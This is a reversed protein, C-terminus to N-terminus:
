PQDDDATPWAFRRDREYDQRRADLAMAVYTPSNDGVLLRLPGDDSDVHALIAAAAVSPAAEAGPERGSEDWPVDATGFISRRLEDYAEIPASFKMSSWSWDTDFGDLEAITVRIGMGAVEAALAESFGELAWKGANYLGFGPMTGVGGVTSIQVIHGSEQRRLHPLVAQSVWLAGLLNTDIISRAEAESVEEIMGVLGYGANNVVIDIRGAAVVARDVAEVIATRDRVDLVEVDVRGPYREVLDELAAPGRVTGVVRDGAALAAEVIARGIGRGAGTVFWVRPSSDAAIVTRRMRCVRSGVVSGAAYRSQIGGNPRRRDGSLHSARIPEYECRTFDDLTTTSGKPTPAGSAALALRHDKPVDVSDVCPSAWTSSIQQLM